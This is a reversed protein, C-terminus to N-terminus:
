LLQEIKEFYEDMLCDLNIKLSVYESTNPGAQNYLESLKRKLQVINMLLETNEMQISKNAKMICRMHM